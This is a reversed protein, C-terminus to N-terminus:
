WAEKKDNEKVKNKVQPPYRIKKKQIKNKGWEDGYINNNGSALFFTNMTM